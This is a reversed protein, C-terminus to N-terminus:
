LWSINTPNNIKKGKSKLYSEIDSADSSAKAMRMPQSKSRQAKIYAEELAEHTIGKYSVTKLGAPRDMVDVEADGSVAPTVVRYLDKGTGPQDPGSSVKPIPVYVTEAINGGVKKDIAKEIAQARAKETPSYLDWDKPTRSYNPIMMALSRSGHLVDKRHNRLSSTVISSVIQEHNRRYNELEKQTPPPLGSANPLTKSVGMHGFSPMSTESNDISVLPKINMPRIPIIKTKLM